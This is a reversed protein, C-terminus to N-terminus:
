ETGVSPEVLTKLDSFSKGEQIKKALSFLKWKESASANQLGGGYGVIDELFLSGARGESVKMAVDEDFKSLINKIEEVDVDAAWKPKGLEVLVRQSEAASLSASIKRQESIQNSLESIEDEYMGKLDPVRVIFDEETQSLKMGTSTKANIFNSKTELSQLSIRKKNIDDEMEKILDSVGSLEERADDFIGPVTTKPPVAEPIGEFAAKEEEPEFLGIGEGIEVDGTKGYEIIESLIDDRNQMVKDISSLARLGKEADSGLPTKSYLGKIFKRDSKGIDEDTYSKKVLSSLDRAISMVGSANQAEYYGVLATTLRNAQPKTLGLQSEFQDVVEDLEEGGDSYTHYIGGIGTTTVFEEAHSQVLQENVQQLMQLRLGVNQFEQQKQMAHFQMLQLTHARRSERRQQSGKRLERLTRLVELEGAM